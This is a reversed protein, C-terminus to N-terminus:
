SIPHFERWAEWFGPPIYEDKAHPIRAFFVHLGIKFAYETKGYFLLRRRKFDELKERLDKPDMNIREAVTECTAPEVFELLLKGEEPTFLVRLFKICSASNPYDLREAVDFYVDENNM